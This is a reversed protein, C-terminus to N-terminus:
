RRKWSNLILFDFSIRGPGYAILALAMAVWPLTETAWFQPYVLFIVIIMGLMGLASLRTLFGIVLAAPLLIEGFSALWVSIEPYPMPYTKDLIWFKSWDSPAHLMFEHAFLYKAGGNLELFGDWKTLGSKFFPLALAIRLALSAIAQIFIMYGGGAGPSRAAPANESDTM